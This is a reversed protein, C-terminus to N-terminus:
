SKSGNELDEVKAQLTKVAEILVGVMAQYNVSKTGEENTLVVEPIIEEVEQAIVGMSYKGSDKWNFNVGRLNSVKDYANEVTQVNEKLNIDSTSNVDGGVTIGANFTAAGAESMDLTLATITSGGDNGKFIMDRDSARSWILADTSSNGFSLIATGNDFFNIYGGNADLKIDSAADIIFDDTATITDGDITIEDVIVGANATVTSNFTAAGAGSMDLTLATFFSGGDNGTFKMDGDSVSSYLVFDNGDKYFLGYQTGDDKLRVYGSDNADLSIKGEVDLTFDAADSITSGNITIDDIVASGSVTLTGTFTDNADSRLYSSGQVGDLLDADLGSGSGDNTSHWILSNTSHDLNSGYRLNGSNVGLYRSGVSTDNLEIGVQSSRQLELPNASGDNILLQGSMSDAADSRLFSSAHLSDVTDANTASSATGTLNGTVNGEVNAVLTGTTISLNGTTAGTFTGTGVIFKDASEDFGMFANASSGREIVIGSDNSPSGSTGNGLEILSDSVVTNSTAVTTTTGNVTLDGGVVVAGTTTIADIYGHSWYNSSDGLSHTSDASPIINSAVDATITVTDSAANGLTTNGNVTLNGVLTSNGTTCVTAFCSTGSSTINGTVNGTVAGTVAGCLNTACLNAVGTICKSNGALNGGLTPSTDEQVCTLADGLTFAASSWASGTYVKLQSGSTNYYLAGTLLSDGDNDASPDSSKSGLYRDDFQDYSNAAATASSAANTASGAAATASSAANTEQPLLLLQRHHLLLQVL